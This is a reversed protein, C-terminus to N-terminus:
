SLPEADTVVNETNVANNTEADALGHLVVVAAAVSVAAIMQALYIDNNTRDRRNRDLDHM